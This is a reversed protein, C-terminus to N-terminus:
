VPSIQFRLTIDVGLCITLLEDRFCLNIAKLGSNKRKRTPPYCNSSPAKRLRHHWLSWTIKSSSNELFVFRFKFKEPTAPVSLMDNVGNVLKGPTTHIPGLNSMHCASRWTSFTNPNFDTLFFWKCTTRTHAFAKTACFKSFRVFCISVFPAM